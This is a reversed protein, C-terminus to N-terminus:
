TLPPGCAVCDCLMERGCDGFDLDGPGHSIMLLCSFDTPLYMSLHTFLTSRGRELPSFRILYFTQMRWFHKVFINLPQTHSSRSDYRPYLFPGLPSLSHRQSFIYRCVSHIPRCVPILTLTPCLYLTQGHLLWPDAFHSPFLLRYGHGLYVPAVTYASTETRGPGATM